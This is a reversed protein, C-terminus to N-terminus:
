RELEEVRLEAAVDLVPPRCGRSSTSVPSAVAVKGSPDSGSTEVDGADGGVEERGSLFGAHPEEASRQVKEGLIVVELIEQARARSRMGFKM